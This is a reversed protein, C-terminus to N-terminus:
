PATGVELWQLSRSFAEGPQVLPTLDATRMWVRAAPLCQARFARSLLGPRREHPAATRSSWSTSSASRSRAATAYTLELRLDGRRHSLLAIANLRAIAGLRAKFDAPALTCTIAVPESSQKAM